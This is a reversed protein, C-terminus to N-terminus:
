AAASPQRLAVHTQRKGFVASSSSFDPFFPQFHWKNPSGLSANQLFFRSTQCNHSSRSKNLEERLIVLLILTAM